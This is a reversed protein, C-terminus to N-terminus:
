NCDYIEGRRYCNGSTRLKRYKNLRQNVGVYASNVGLNEIGYTVSYDGLSESKIPISGTNFAEIEKHSIFAMKILETVLGPPLTSFKYDTNCYNNIYILADQVALEILPYKEPEVNVVSIVNQIIRQMAHLDDM